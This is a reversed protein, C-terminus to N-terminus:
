SDESIAWALLALLIWKAHPNPRTGPRTITITPGQYVEPQLALLVASSAPGTWEKFGVQSVTVRETPLFAGSWNGHEDTDVQKTLNYVYAFPVGEGTTADIVRGTM